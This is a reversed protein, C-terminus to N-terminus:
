LSQLQGAGQRDGAKDAEVGLGRRGALSHGTGAPGELRSNGAEWDTQLKRQRSIGGGSGSNTDSTAGWGVGWCQTGEGQRRLGPGKESGPMRPTQWTGTEVMPIAHPMDPLVQDSEDRHRCCHRACLLHGTLAHQIFSDKRGPGWDERWSQESSPAGRVTRERTAGCDQRGLM